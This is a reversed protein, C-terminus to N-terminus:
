WEIQYEDDTENYIIDKEIQKQTERVEKVLEHYESMTAPKIDYDKEDDDDFIDIHKLKDLLGM